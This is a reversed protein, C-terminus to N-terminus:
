GTVLITEKIDTNLATITEKHNSYSEIKYDSEMIIVSLKGDWM